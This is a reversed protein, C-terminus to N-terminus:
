VACGRRVINDYRKLSLENGNADYYHNGTGDFRNVCRVTGRPLGNMSNYYERDFTASEGNPYHVTTKEPVTTEIFRM